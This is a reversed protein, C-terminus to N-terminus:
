SMVSSATTRNLLDRFIFSLAQGPGEEIHEDFSRAKVKGRTQGAILGTLLRGFAM